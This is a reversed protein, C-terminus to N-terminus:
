VPDGPHRSGGGDGLRHLIEQLEDESADPDPDPCMRPERQPRQSLQHPPLRYRTVLQHHSMQHQSPQSSDEICDIAGDLPCDPRQDRHCATASRASASPPSGVTIKRWM